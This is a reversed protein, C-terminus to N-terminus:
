PQVNAKGRPRRVFGRLSGYMSAELSDAYEHSIREEAGIKSTWHGNPLARTAHVLTDKEDFWHSADAFYLGITDYGPTYVGEDTREYGLAEWHRFGCRESNLDCAVHVPWRYADVWTTKKHMAWAFCNYRGDKPGTFDFWDHRLRPFWQEYHEKRSENHYTM